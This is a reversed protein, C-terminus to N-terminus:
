HESTPAASTRAWAPGRGSHRWPPVSITSYLKTRCRPRRPPWSPGTVAHHLHPTNALASLAPAGAAAAAPEAAPLGLLRRQQQRGQVAQPLLLNSCPAWTCRYAPSLSPRGEAAPQAAEVEELYKM